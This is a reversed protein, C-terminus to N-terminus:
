RRWPLPSPKPLDPIRPVHPFKEKVVEEVAESIVAKVCGVAYRKITDGYWWLLLVAALIITVLNNRNPAQADM